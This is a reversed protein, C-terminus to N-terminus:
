AKNRELPLEPAAHQYNGVHGHSGLRCSAELIKEFAQFNSPEDQSRARVQRNQVPRVPKTAVASASASQDSQLQKLDQLVESAHQYRQERDKELCRNIISQMGEPLQPNIQVPAVPAQQVVSLFIEGTSDGKFSTVGTAM